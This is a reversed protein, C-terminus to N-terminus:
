PDIIVPIEDPPSSAQLATPAPLEIVQQAPKEYHRKM